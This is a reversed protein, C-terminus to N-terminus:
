ASACVKSNLELAGMGFGLLTKCIALHWVTTARSIGLLGLAIFFQSLGCLITDSICRSCIRYGVLLVFISALAWPAQILGITQSIRMQVATEGVDTADGMGFSPKTLLLPMSLRLLANMSNTVLENVLVM